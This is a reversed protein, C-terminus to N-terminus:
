EHEVEEVAATREHTAMLQGRVPSASELKAAESPSQDPVTYRQAPAAILRTGHFSSFYLTTASQRHRRPRPARPHAFLHVSRLRRSARTSPRVAFASGDCVFWSSGFDAGPARGAFCVYLTCDM